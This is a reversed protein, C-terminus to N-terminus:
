APHAGFMLCGRSLAGTTARERAVAVLSNSNNRTAAKKGEDDGNNKALANLELEHIVIVVFVNAFIWSDDPAKGRISDLPGEGMDVGAIPM